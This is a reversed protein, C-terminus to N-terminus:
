SASLARQAQSLGIVLRRALWVVREFLITMRFVADQVAPAASSSASLRQRLDEMLQDRDGLLHLVMEPDDMNPDEAYDAVMMMLAHLAEVLSGTTPLAAAAPVTSVLEGLAENLAAINGTADELLLATALEARGPQHDLLSTLYSKIIGALATSAARLTAAPPSGPEPEARVHDLLLPLRVTLRALERIVLDLAAPPDNLAERILFAPKSLVESPNQPTLRHILAGAPKVTLSAIFSGVIQAIAFIIALQGEPSHGLFGMIAAAEEPKHASLIALAVLLLTGAAKQVVQLGFVMRGAENESWAALLNYAMGAANAGAILPLATSVTLLGSGVAGVGIATAVSSSQAAFAFAGGIVALVLYSQLAAKVVDSAMMAERTSEVTGSVVHMGYLLMAAGLAADLINRLRESHALKFYTVIGVLGIVFGAATNTDIALLLPLTATGVSSWNPAVLAPGASVIGAREFSIIILSVAASSQTALGAITGSIASSVPGRLARAFVIRARRGILPVLNASLSRVGLFFLGLGSLLAAITEFVNMDPVSCFLSGNSKEQWSKVGCCLM